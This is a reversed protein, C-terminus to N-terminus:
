KLEAGSKQTVRVNKGDVQKIQIRTGKKTKPDVIMVNSANIPADFEIQGDADQQRVKRNKKMRNVGEVVVRNEERLVQTVKGTKGKDKGATVVVTDGQKLRM